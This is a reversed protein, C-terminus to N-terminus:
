LGRAQPRRASSATHEFSRFAEELIRRAKSRLEAEDGGRIMRLENAVAALLSTSENAAGRDYPLDSSLPHHRRGRLMSSAITLSAHGVRGLTWGRAENDNCIM